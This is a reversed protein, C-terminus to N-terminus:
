GRNSIGWTQCLSSHMQIFKFMRTTNNNIIQREESQIRVKITKNQLRLGNFSLVAKQAHMPDKFEVFGYGLSQGSIKDRVLKCSEVEGISAFLARVEEQSMGQPLYNIILNTKSEGIDVNPETCYRQTPVYNKAPLNNNQMALVTSDM